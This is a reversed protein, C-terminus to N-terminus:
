GSSSQDTTRGGDMARGGDTALREEEDRRRLVEAVTNVLLGGVIVLLGATGVDSTGELALIAMGGMMVLVSVYWLTAPSSLRDTLSDM